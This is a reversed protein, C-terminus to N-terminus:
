GSLYVPRLENGAASVQEIQHFEVDFSRQLQNVDVVQPQILDFGCGLTAQADARQHAIGIQGGVAADSFVVGQKRAGQQGASGALQAIHRAGGAVQQLACAARVKIVDVLGAVFAFGAATACRNAPDAPLQSDDADTVRADGSVGAVHGDGHTREICLYFRHFRVAASAADGHDIKMLQRAGRRIDFGAEGGAFEDGAHGQGCRETARVNIVLHTIARRIRERQDRDTQNHLLVAGAADGDAADCRFGPPDFGSFRQQGAARFGDAFTQEIASRGGVVILEFQGQDLARETRHQRM